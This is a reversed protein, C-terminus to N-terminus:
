SVPTYFCDDGQKVIKLRNESAMKRLTIQFGANILEFNIPDNNKIFEKLESLVGYHGDSIVEKYFRLALEEGALYHESDNNVISLTKELYDRGTLVPFYEFNIPFEPIECPTSIILADMSMNQLRGAQSEFTAFLTPDLITGDPFTIWVHMDIINEAEIELEKSLSELTCHYEPEDNYSVHGITIQGTNFGNEFLVENVAATHPCNNVMNEKSKFAAMCAYIQDERTPLKLNTVLDDPKLGLKITESQAIEFLALYSSRKVSM